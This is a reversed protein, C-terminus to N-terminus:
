ENTTYAYCTVIFVFLIRIKLGQLKIVVQGFAVLSVIESACHIEGILWFM